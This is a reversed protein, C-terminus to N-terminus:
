EELNPLTVPHALVMRWRGATQRFVNSLALREDVQSGTPLQLRAVQIGTLVAVTDFLDVTVAEASVSVLTLPMQVITSIFADRHQEVQGPSRCVFDDALMYLFLQADKRELALWFQQQCALVAQVDAHALDTSIM